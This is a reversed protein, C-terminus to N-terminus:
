EIQAPREEQPMSDYRRLREAIADGLQHHEETVAQSHAERAWHFAFRAFGGIVAKNQYGKQQELRLIKILTQLSSAM